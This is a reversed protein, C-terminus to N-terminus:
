IMGLAFVKKAIILTRAVGTEISSNAVADIQIFTNIWNTITTNTYSLSWMKTMLFAWNKSNFVIEQLVIESALTELNQKMM